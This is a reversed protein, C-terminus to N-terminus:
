APRSSSRKRRTSSMARWCTTCPHLSWSSTLATLTAGILNMFRRLKLYSIWDRCLATSAALMMIIPAEIILALPFVLGGFAALNITPDELRSVVASIAPGELGM